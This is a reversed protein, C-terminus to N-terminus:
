VKSDLVKGYTLTYNSLIDTRNNIEQLAYDVLPIIGSSVFAGTKSVVFSFHLTHSEVAGCFLLFLVM